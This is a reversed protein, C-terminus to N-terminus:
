RAMAIFKDLIAAGAKPNGDGIQRLYKSSLVREGDVTVGSFLKDFIHGGLEASGAGSPPWIMGRCM